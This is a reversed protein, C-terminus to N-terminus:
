RCCVSSLSWHSFNRLSSVRNKKNKKWFDPCKKLKKFLLAFLSWFHIVHFYYYFGKHLAMKMREFNIQHKSLQQHSIYNNLCYNKTFSPLILSTATWLRLFNPIKWLCNNLLLMWVWNTACFTLIMNKAWGWGRVGSFTNHSWINKNNYFMSYIFM